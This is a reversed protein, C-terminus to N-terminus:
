LEGLPPCEMPALMIRHKACYLCTIDAVAAGPSVDFFRVFETHLEGNQEVWEVKAFVNSADMCLPCEVM